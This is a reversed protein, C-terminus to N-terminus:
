RFFGVGSSKWTEVKLEQLLGNTKSLSRCLMTLIIKKNIEVTRPFEYRPTTAQSDQSLSCEKESVYGEVVLARELNKTTAVIYLLLDLHSRDELRAKLLVVLSEMKKPDDVKYETTIIRCRGETAM